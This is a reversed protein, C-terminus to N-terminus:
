VLLREGATGAALRAGTPGVDKVTAAAVRLRGAARLAELQTAIEPAIRSRHVEWRRSYQTLFREKEPLSLERWLQQTVPRLSDIVRRWDGTARAREEIDSALADVT